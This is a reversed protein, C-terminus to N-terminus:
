RRHRQQHSEEDVHLPLAGSFAGGLARSEPPLEFELAFDARNIDRRQARSQIGHPAVERVGSVFMRADDTRTLIENGGGTPLQNMQRKKPVM